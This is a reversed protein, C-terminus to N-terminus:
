SVSVSIVRLPRNTKNSFFEQDLIFKAKLFIDVTAERSM